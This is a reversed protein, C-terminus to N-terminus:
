SLYPNYPVIWRNDIDISIGKKKIIRGHNRRRYTPYGNKNITTTTVFERPYYKSCKGNIICPSSPNIIGCPGYIMNKSVTEFLKPQLTEDPIEASVIQDFDEPTQPKNEPVLIIM